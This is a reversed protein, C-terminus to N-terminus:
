VGNRRGSKLLFILVGLEVVIVLGWVAVVQAAQVAEAKYQDLTANIDGGVQGGLASAFGSVINSFGSM